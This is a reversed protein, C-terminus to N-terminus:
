EEEEEWSESGAEPCDPSAHRDCGCYWCGDPHPYEPWKERALHAKYMEEYSPISRM